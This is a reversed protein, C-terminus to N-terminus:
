GQIWNIIFGALISLLVISTVVIFDLKKNKPSDDSNMASLVNLITNSKLTLIILSLDPLVFGDIIIMCLSSFM